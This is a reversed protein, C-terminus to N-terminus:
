VTIKGSAIQEAVMGEADEQSMGLKIATRIITEKAKTPDGAPQVSALANQYQNDKSRTKQCGNWFKLLAEDDGGHFELMDEVSSAVPFTYESAESNAGGKDPGNKNPDWSVPFKATATQEVLAM